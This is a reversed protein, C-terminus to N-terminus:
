PRTLLAASWLPLSLSLPLHSLQRCLLLPLVSLPRRPCHRAPTPGPSTSAAPSLLCPSARPARRQMWTASTTTPWATLPAPSTRSGRVATGASACRSATGSTASLGRSLACSVPAPPRRPCEWRVKPGTWTVPQWVVATGVFMKAVSRLRSVSRYSSFLSTIFVPPQMHKDPM